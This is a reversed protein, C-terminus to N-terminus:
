PRLMSDLLEPQLLVLDGFSFRRLMAQAEVLGICTEFQARLDVQESETLDQNIVFTDYLQDVTFLLQDEDRMDNLYRKIRQFLTTSSVRPLAEWDIVRHIASDLEAIGIHERASTPFFQDFKLEHMLGRVRDQSIGIGGRDVRGAILFKQLHRQAQRQHLMAQTLARNWYKVGAFPDGEKSVDFMVLAVSVENLHLQHILRYSPQGAMDWLLIERIEHTNAEKEVMREETDYRWVQRGHTSDHLTFPKGRLADSLCTKGVGSDGVLVIKANTYRVTQQAPAAERLVEPAYSWIRIMQDGRDLTALVPKRPHFSVSPTWYLSALENLIVVPNWTDCRWIRVTCDLSKSALFSSDSSFSVSTVVDTHGELVGTVQGWLRVTSDESGSALVSGDPSWALQYVPGAHGELIRIMEGSEADWMRVTADGAGTALTRGIPSWTVCNVEGNHGLLVQQLQFNNQTDWLAVTGDGSASALQTGDPSWAVDFITRGHGSLVRVTQGHEVDWIRITNDGSGSALLKGDPSWTISSIWDSHGELRQPHSGQRTLDWIKVLSDFSSTALLHQRPSWAIRNIVADHGYLKRVPRRFGEPAPIETTAEEIDPIHHAMNESLEFSLRMGM